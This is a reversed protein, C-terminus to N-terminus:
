ITEIEASAGPKLIFVDTVDTLKGEDIDSTVYLRDWRFRFFFNYLEEGPYHAAKKDTDWIIWYPAFYLEAQPYRSKIFAITNEKSFTAYDWDREDYIFYTYCIGM